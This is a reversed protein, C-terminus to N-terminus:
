QPPTFNVTVTMPLKARAGGHPAREFEWQKVADMAVHDFIWISRAIRADAVRGHEDITAEVVVV